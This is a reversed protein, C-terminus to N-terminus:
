VFGESSNHRHHPTFRRHMYYKVRQNLEQYSQINQTKHSSNHLQNLLGGALKSCSWTPVGDHVQKAQLNVAPVEKNESREEEWGVYTRIAM